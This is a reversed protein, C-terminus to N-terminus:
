SRTRARRGAPRRAARGHRLQRRAMPLGARRGQMGAARRFAPLCQGRRPHARREPLCPGGHRLVARRHQRDGAGREGCLAQSADVFRWEICKCPLYICNCAIDLKICNCSNSLCAAHVFSPCSSSISIAAQARSSFADAFSSSATSRSRFAAPRGGSAQYSASSSSCRAPGIAQPRAVQLRLHQQRLVVDGPQDIPQLRRAIGHAARMRSSPRPWTSCIVASPVASILRM